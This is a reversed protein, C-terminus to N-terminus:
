GGTPIGFERLANRAFAPNLFAAIDGLYPGTAAPHPLRNQGQNTNGGAVVQRFMQQIEPPLKQASGLMTGFDKGTQGIAKIVEPNKLLTALQSLLGPGPSAGSGAIPAAGEFGAAGFGSGTDASFGAAGASESGMGM